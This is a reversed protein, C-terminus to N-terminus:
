EVEEEEKEEKEEDKGEDKNDKPVLKFKGLLRFPNPKFLVNPHVKGCNPCPQAKDKEEDCDKESSTDEDPNASGDPGIGSDSNTDSELEHVEEKEQSEDKDENIQDAIKELDELKRMIVPVNWVAVSKKNMHESSPCTVLKQTNLRELAEEVEDSTWSPHQDELGKLIWEKELPTFTVGAGLTYAYHKEQTIFIPSYPTMLEHVRMLIRMIITDKYYVSLDHQGVDPTERHVVNRVQDYTPLPAEMYVPSGHLPYSLHYDCGCKQSKIDSLWKLLQRTEVMNLHPFHHKMRYSPEQSFLISCSQLLIGLIRHYSDPYGFLKISGIPHDCHQSYILQTLFDYVQKTNIHFQMLHYILADKFINMFYMDEPNDSDVLGYCKLLTALTMGLVNLGIVFDKDNRM